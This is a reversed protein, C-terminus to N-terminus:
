KILMIKQIDVRDGATLQVFYVGSALQGSNWTISQYGSSAHGQKVRAVQQGVINYISLEFEGAQDLFWTLHTSPNFPNPYAPRLGFEGVIGAEEDTTALSSIDAQYGVLLQSENSFQSGIGSFYWVAGIEFQSTDVGTTHWLRVLTTDTGDTVKINDGGGSDWRDAITGEFGILTGEYNATNAQAITVEQAAPIANGTSLRSYNFDIVQVTSYYTNVTGVVLLEDGRDMNPLVDYDFLNLGRGSVDQLYARTNDDDLIGAGMTIIGQITTIQGSYGTLDAHIDAIDAVTGAIIISQVSSEGVNSESDTGRVQFDLIMNGAQAPIMGLWTSGSELFMDTSNLLSGESGYWIKASAITGVVATIDASVEIENSSTVFDPTFVVGTVLPANVNVSHAGLHSFDDIEYVIWESDAAGTGASTAWNTNGTIATSKRVLTHNLTAGTVGAVDWADGPDPGEMGVVDIVLWTDSFNQALGIADDGNFYTITSGVSDSVAKIGDDADANCIVWVEGSLITGSLIIGNGAGEAWDGGNSIRWLQFDALDIATDTGNYIELAKNNSSGELYESIFVAAPTIDMVTIMVTDVTTASSDDTVSLEFTLTADASPSTFTAVAMNADALTITTGSVQTWAYDTIAGDPDVSGSGDLTVTLNFNVTQDLGANAIPPINGGGGGSWEHYGLYDFTDQSYIIWESDDTNTGASAIWDTNGTMVSAKRVLTNESTAGAGGAVAWNTGPDNNLIGIMDILTWNSGGDITVELGRGDNGNFSTVSPYSLSEDAVNQLAANAQADVIVWVDGPQIQAGTPFTHWYEWDGGNHSQAIRYNDLDIVAGTGNFIELAKNYSSGEVYESFFVASQAFIVSYFLIIILIMKKM